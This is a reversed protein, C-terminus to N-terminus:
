LCLSVFISLIGIVLASGGAISPITSSINSEKAKNEKSCIYESKDSEQIIPLKLIENAKLINNIELDSYVIQLKDETTSCEIGQTFPDTGNFDNILCKITLSYNFIDPFACSSVLTKDGVKSYVKATNDPIQNYEKDLISLKMKDKVIDKRVVLATGIKYIPNSFSVTKAREETITFEGGTIDLDSDAEGIKMRDETNNFEVLEVNYNKSKAFQYILDFEIGKFEDNIKFSFPKCDTLFGFKIKKVGQYNDKEFLINSADEVDWKEYLEEVDQKELFENFENLLTHDNKKFAFGIDNTVNINFYTIREPFKKANNKAITEDTLYGEIDEKLLFYLIDYDNDYYTVKSDPFRKKYLYEFSYDNLCGLNVGNIQEPSDYIAWNTSEPHNSFRIVPNLQGEGFIFYSNKTEDYNINDQTFYNVIDFTNNNIAQNLEDISTAEKLDVQYGIYRALGYLFEVESGVLEGKKDKFSFPPYNFYLAKIIGNNGPLTKNIYLDDENIGMWKYYSKLYKSNKNIINQFELSKQYIFSDKKCVLSPYIKVNAEGPIQSLTNTLIQTYNALTNDVLIADVKHKELAEMLDDVSNYKEVNSFDDLSFFQLIGVKKTKIDDITSYFERGDINNDHELYEKMNVLISYEIKKNKCKPQILESIDQSIIIEISLFIIFLTLLENYNMIM